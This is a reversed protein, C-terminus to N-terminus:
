FIVANDCIDWSNFDRVWKNMQSKTVLKPDDIVAAIHRAEHYGNGM